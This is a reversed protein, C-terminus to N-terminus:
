SPQKLDLGARYGHPRSSGSQAECLRGMTLGELFHTKGETAERIVADSPFHSYSLHIHTLFIVM